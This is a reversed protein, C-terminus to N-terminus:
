YITCTQTPFGGPEDPPNQSMGGGAKDCKAALWTCANQSACNYTGPGPPLDAHTQNPHGAIDDVVIPGMPKRPGVPPQTRTVLKDPGGPPPPPPPVATVKSPKSPTSGPAGSQAFASSASAAAFVIVAIAAVTNLRKM